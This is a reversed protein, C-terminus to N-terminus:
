SQRDKTTSPPVPRGSHAAQRRRWRQDLATFALLVLPCALIVAVIVLRNVRIGLLLVAVLATIAIFCVLVM